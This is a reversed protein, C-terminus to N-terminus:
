KCKLVALCSEIFYPQIGMIYENDQWSTLMTDENGEVGPFTLMESPQNEM